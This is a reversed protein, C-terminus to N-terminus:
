TLHYAGCLPPQADPLLRVEGAADIFDIEELNRLRQLRKSVTSRPWKEGGHPPARCGGPARNGPHLEGRRRGLTRRHGGESRGTRGARSRRGGPVADGDRHRNEPHSCKRSRVRPSGEPPAFGTHGLGGRQIARAGSDSRRGYRTRGAVVRLGSVSIGDASRLRARYRSPASADKATQPQANAWRCASPLRGVPLAM